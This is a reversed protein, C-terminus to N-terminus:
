SKIVVAYAPCKAMPQVADHRGQGALFGARSGGGSPADRGGAGRDGDGTRQGVREAVEHRDDAGALEAAGVEARQGGHEAQGRDRGYGPEAQLDRDGHVAGAVAGALGGPDAQQGRDDAGARQQHECRGQDPNEVQRGM